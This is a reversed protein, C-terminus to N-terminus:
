KIHKRGKGKWAADWWTALEPVIYKDQSKALRIQFNLLFVIPLHCRM